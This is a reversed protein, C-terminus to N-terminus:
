KRGVEDTHIEKLIEEVRQIADLGEDYFFKLEPAYRLSLAQGVSRRLRGSASTLGRLLVKREADESIGLEKRVYIRALQLDDTMEVRMVVVGLLRPDDLTRLMASLEERLREAVRASRKVGGSM